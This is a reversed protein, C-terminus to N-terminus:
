EVIFIDEEQTKEQEVTEILPKKIFSKMMLSGGGLIIGLTGIVIGLKEPIGIKDWFKKM